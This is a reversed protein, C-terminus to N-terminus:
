AATREVVPRFGLQRWFDVLLSVTEDSTFPAARLVLDTQASAAFDEPSAAIAMCKERRNTCSALDGISQHVTPTAIITRPPAM